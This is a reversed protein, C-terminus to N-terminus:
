WRWPPLCEAGFVCLAARFRLLSELITGREGCERNITTAERLCRSAEAYLTGRMTALLDGVKLRGM